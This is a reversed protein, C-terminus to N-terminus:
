DKTLRRGAFASLLGLSLVVGAIWLFPVRQETGETNGTAPPKPAETVTAPVTTSPSPAANLTLSFQDVVSLATCPGTVVVKATKDIKPNGYLVGGACRGQSDAVAFAIAEPNKDSRAGKPELRNWWVSVDGPKSVIAYGDGQLGPYKASWAPFFGLFSPGAIQNLNAFAVVLLDDRLAAADPV